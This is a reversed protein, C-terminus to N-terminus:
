SLGAPLEGDFSCTVKSTRPMPVHPSICEYTLVKDSAINVFYVPPSLLRRGDMELADVYMGLLGAFSPAIVLSADSERAARLVDSLNGNGDPPDSFLKRVGPLAGLPWRTDELLTVEVGSLEGFDAALACVMAKAERLLSEPPPSQFCWGGGTVFEYIFIRM